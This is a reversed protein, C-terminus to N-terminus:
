FEEMIKSAGRTWCLSSTLLLIYIYNKGELFLVKGSILVMMVLVFMMKELQFSKSSKIEKGWKILM